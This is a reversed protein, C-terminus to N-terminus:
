QHCCAVRRGVVNGGGVPEAIFLKLLVVLEAVLCDVSPTREGMAGMVLWTRERIGLAGLEVADIM